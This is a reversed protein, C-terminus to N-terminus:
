LGNKLFEKEDLKTSDGENLFAFVSTWTTDEPADCGQIFNAVMSCVVVDEDLM